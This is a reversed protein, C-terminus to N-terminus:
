RSRVSRAKLAETASQLPVIVLSDLGRRSARLGREAIRGRHCWHKGRGRLVAACVVVAESFMHVAGTSPRQAVAQVDRARRDGTPSTTARAGDDAEFREPM